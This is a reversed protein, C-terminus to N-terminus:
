LAREWFGTAIARWDFRRRAEDVESPTVPDPGARLVREIAESTEDAGAEPVFRALGDFWRRYHPADFMIPRAGCCLGEAAPLEFGEVRRLGAVYECESYTRALEEDDIGFVAEVHRGFGLDPGLHFMRVPRAAAYPADHRLRGVANECERVGETEAVYGSTLVAYRRHVSPRPAFTRDVGLPALYLSPLAERFDYYSWVAGAAEWVYRRWEMMDDQQATRLCYQVVAYRGPGAAIQERAEQYGIVHLVDMDADQRRLVFDIGPPAHEKLARAVRDMARSLGARPEVHVKMAGGGEGGVGEVALLALVSGMLVDRILVALMVPIRVGFVSARLPATAHRGHTGGTHPPPLIPERWFKLRVRSAIATKVSM